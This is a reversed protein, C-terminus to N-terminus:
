AALSFLIDVQWSAFSIADKVCEASTVKKFVKLVILMVNRHNPKHLSSYAIVNSM